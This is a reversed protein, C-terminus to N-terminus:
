KWLLKWHIYIYSVRVEQHVIYSNMMRTNRLRFIFLIDKTSNFCEMLKTLAKIFSMEKKKPNPFVSITCEHAFHNIHEFTFRQLKISSPFNWDNKKLNLFWIILIWKSVTSIIIEDCTNLSELRQDGRQIWCM